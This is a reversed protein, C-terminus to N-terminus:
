GDHADRHSLLRQEVLNSDENLGVASLVESVGQVTSTYNCMSPLFYRM